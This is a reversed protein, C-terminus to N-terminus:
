RAPAALRRLLALTMARPLGSVSSRIEDADGDGYLGDVYPGLDPDDITFAGCSRLVDGRAIAREVAPVPLPAFHATAEHTGHVARRSSADTVVVTTVTSVSTGAYGRLWRRAEDASSPKERIEGRFVAVQDCTILLSPRPVRPLLAAAKAVAIHWTLIAPDPHRIAKEDIDAAMATFPLGLAELEAARWRSSSGLIIPLGAFDQM